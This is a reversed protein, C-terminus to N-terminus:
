FHTGVVQGALAGGAGEDVAEGVAGARRARASVVLGVGVGVGAERAGAVAGHGGVARVAPAAAVEGKGQVRRGAAGERDRRARARQRRPAAGHVEVCVRRTQRLVGVGM